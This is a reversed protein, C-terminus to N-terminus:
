QQICALYKRRMNKESMKMRLINRETKFDGWVINQKREFVNSPFCNTWYLNQGSVIHAFPSFIFPPRINRQKCYANKTIISCLQLNYTHWRSKINKFSLMCVEQLELFSLFREFFYWDRHKEDELLDTYKNKSEYGFSHFVKDKTFLICTPTTEYQVQRDLWIHTIIDLPNRNYHGKFSCTFGSDKNTISIAVAALKSCM